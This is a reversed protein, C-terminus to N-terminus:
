VTAAPPTPKARPAVAAARAPSRRLQTESKATSGRRLLQQAEASGRNVARCKARQAASAPKIFVSQHYQPNPKLAAEQIPLSLLVKHRNHLDAAHLGLM